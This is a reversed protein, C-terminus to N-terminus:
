PFFQEILFCIKYGKVAMHNGVKSMFLTVQFRHLALNDAIKEIFIVM